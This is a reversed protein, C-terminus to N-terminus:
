NLKAKKYANSLIMKVPSITSFFTNYAQFTNFATRPVSLDNQAMHYLNIFSYWLDSQTANLSIEMRM